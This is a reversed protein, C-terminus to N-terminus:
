VGDSFIVMPASLKAFTQSLQSGRCPWPSGADPRFEGSSPVANPVSDLTPSVDQAQSNSAEAPVETSPASKAAETAANGLSTPVAPTQSPSQPIEPAQPIAQPVEPVQFMPQPVDPPGTEQVPSAQGSAAGTDPEPQQRLSDRIMAGLDPVTEQVPPAQGSAAETAPRPQPQLSDRILAGLDPGAEQVPPAQGSAAETAPQPQQQLSDRLAAGLDPGAEQVPPAQGSATESAPQPQQQLRDRLAAGLDPGTEQVPPAQVSAAGTDFQPKQQLGDRIRAGLDPGTEQVPPAQVSAGGTDPQLQQQLSDRLRVGLDPGIEQVPPAQVPDAGSDHRPQQQLSDRILAGLDSFDTATTAAARIVPTSSGASNSVKFQAADHGLRAHGIHPPPPSRRSVSNNDGRPHFKDGHASFAGAACLLCRRCAGEPQSQAFLLRIQVFCAQSVADLLHDEGDGVRM